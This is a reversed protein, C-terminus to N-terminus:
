LVKICRNSGTDENFMLQPTVIGDPDYSLSRLIAAFVINKKLIDGKGGM